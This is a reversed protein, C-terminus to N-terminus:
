AAVEIEVFTEDQLAAAPTLNEIEVREAVPVKRV